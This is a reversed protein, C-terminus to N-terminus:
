VHWIHVGARQAEKWFVSIVIRNGMEAYLEDKFFIIKAFFIYKKFLQNERPLFIAFISKRLLCQKKQM